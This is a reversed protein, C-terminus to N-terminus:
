IDFSGGCKPCSSHSGLEDSEVTGIFEHGCQLCTLNANDTAIEAASEPRCGAKWATNGTLNRLLIKRAAKFEAGVFGLRILFLRMTFKDNGIDREKATVRTQRKAMECLATIFRTYADMEGDTGTLTFWSFCLKNTAIHVTIEDSALAKKILSKKSNIIQTLNEFMKLTFGDRPIEITLKNCAAMSDPIDSAQMGDEGPPDRRERGLGLEECETMGASLTNLIGQEEACIFGYRHLEAYLNLNVDDRIHGEGILTGEKTIIFGGCEYNATPMGCYRLPQGLIESVAKALSKRREGIVNYNITM